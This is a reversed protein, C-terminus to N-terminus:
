DDSREFEEFSGGPVSDLGELVRASDIISAIKRVTDASLGAARVGLGSVEAAKMSGLLDLRAANVDDDVADVFYSPKVKFYRALAEVLDLRPAAGIGNRLESLYAKSLRVGTKTSFDEAFRSASMPRGDETALVDMLKNLKDAFTRPAEQMSTRM